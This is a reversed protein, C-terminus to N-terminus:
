RALRRPKRRQRKLHDCQHRASPPALGMPERLIVRHMYIRLRRGNRRAERWAYISAGYRWPLRVFARRWRTLFALDRAHVTVAYEGPPGFRIRRTTM